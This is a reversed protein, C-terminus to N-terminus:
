EKVPSYRFYNLDPSLYWATTHNHISSCCVWNVSFESPFVHLNIERQWKVANCVILRSTDTGGMVHMGRHSKRGNFFQSEFSTASM